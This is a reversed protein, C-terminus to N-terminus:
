KIACGRSHNRHIQILVRLSPRLSVIAAMKTTEYRRPKTISEIEDWSLENGWISRSVVFTTSYRLPLRSAAEARKLGSQGIEPM